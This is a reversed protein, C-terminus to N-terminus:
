CDGIYEDFENPNSSLRDIVVYREDFEVDPIKKWCYGGGTEYLYPPIDVNYIGDETKAVVYVHQEGCQQSVTSCEIVNNTLIDAMADAIDQCIGGKGFMDCYGNEDQKWEDYVTQAALALKPKLSLLINTNLYENLYEHITTAIFKM